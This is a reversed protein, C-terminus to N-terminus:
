EIYVLIDGNEGAALHIIFVILNAIEISKSDKLFVFCLSCNCIWWGHMCVQKVYLLHLLRCLAFKIM